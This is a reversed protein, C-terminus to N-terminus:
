ININSIKLDDLVQKLYNTPSFDNQYHYDVKIDKKLWEFDIDEINNFYRMYEPNYYPLNIINSNNTLLKKNFYLAEFYRISQTKQNEQLIEIICNTEQISNIINDYKQWDRYLIKYSPYKKELEHLQNDNYCFLYFNPKLNNNLITEYLNFLLKEKSGKIGGVFFLDSKITPTSNASPLKSTSFYNRGIYTWGFEISDYYDYTYIKDWYNNKITNIVSIFSPSNAHVSDFIFLILKCNFKKTLNKFYEYSLRNLCQPQMIIIYQTKKNHIYNGVNYIYKQNIIKKYLKFFKLLTCIPSKNGILIKGLLTKRIIFLDLYPITELDSFIYRELYAPPDLVFLIKSKM